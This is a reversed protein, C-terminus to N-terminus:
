SGTSMKTAGSNPLYRVWCSLALIFNLLQLILFFLLPFSAPGGLLYPQLTTLYDVRFLGILALCLIFTCVSATSLEQDPMLQITGPQIAEVFIQTNDQFAFGIYLIFSGWRRLIM